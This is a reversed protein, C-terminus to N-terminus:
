LPVRKGGRLIWNIAESRFFSSPSQYWRWPISEWWVQCARCSPELWLKTPASFRHVPAGKHARSPQAIAHAKFMPHQQLPSSIIIIIIIIIIITTTTTIIIIVIIVLVIILIVLIVIAIVVIVVVLSTIISLSVCSPCSYRCSAHHMVCVVFETDMSSERLANKMLWSRKMIGQHFLCMNWAFGHANFLSLSHEFLNMFMYGGEVHFSHSQNIAVWWSWNHEPKPLGSCPTNGWGSIVVMRTPNPPKSQHIQKSKVPTKHIWELTKM